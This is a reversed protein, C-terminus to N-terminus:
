VVYCATVRRILIRESTSEVEDRFLKQIGNAAPCKTYLM